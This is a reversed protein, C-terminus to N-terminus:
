TCTYGGRSPCRLFEEILIMQEFENLTKVNKTRKWKDLLETKSRGFEVYTQENTKHTDRFELRYAEPVLEYAKLLRTIRM